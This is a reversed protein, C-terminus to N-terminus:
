VALLRAIAFVLTRNRHVWLEVRERITSPRSRCRAPSRKSTMLAPRLDGEHSGFGYLRHGLEARADGPLFKLGQLAVQALGEVVDDGDAVLGVVGEGDEGAGLVAQV